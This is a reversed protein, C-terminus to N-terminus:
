RFPWAVIPFPLGLVLVFLLSAIVALGSALVLIRRLDSMGYPLTAAVVMIFVSTMLGIRDIGLSFVALSGCVVSIAKWLAPGLAARELRERTILVNAIMTVGILALLSSVALPYWGPGMQQTSGISYRSALAAFLFGIALFILGSIFTKSELKGRM